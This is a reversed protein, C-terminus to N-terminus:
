ICWIVLEGSVSVIKKGTAKLRKHILEVLPSPKLSIEEELVPTAKIEPQALLEPAVFGEKVDSTEPSKEILAASTADPISVPAEAIPDASKVKTKRKKKQSKSLPTPPPAGPVIRQTTPEVM